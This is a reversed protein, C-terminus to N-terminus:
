LGIVVSTDSLMKAASYIGSVRPFLAVRLTQKLTWPLFIHTLFFLVLRSDIIRLRM